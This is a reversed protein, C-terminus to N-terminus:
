RRWLWIWVVLHLATIGLTVSWYSPKRRKHRFLQMGLLAGPFGGFLEFLHLRREPVRRRQAGARWKDWAFLGATLLSMGAYAYLAIQLPSM